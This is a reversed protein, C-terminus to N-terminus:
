ELPTMGFEAWEEKSPGCVGPVRLGAQRMLVTMQGRHHVQHIFLGALVDARKWMQGYMNIEDGLMEDKWNKEVQEVMVASLKEYEDKIAKASTPAPANEDFSPFDIGTKSMMEGITQTIHWAIFGLSRGEPTVKQKLSEDTLNNLVKVTSASEKKWVELSFDDVSRILSM